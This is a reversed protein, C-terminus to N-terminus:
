NAPGTETAQLQQYTSKRQLLWDLPDPLISARVPPQDTSAVAGRSNETTALKPPEGGTSGLYVPERYSVPGVMRMGGANVRAEAAEAAQVDPDLNAPTEGAAAADEDLSKQRRDDLVTRALSAAVVEPPVPPKNVAIQAGSGPRFLTACVHDYTARYAFAFSQKTYPVGTLSIAQTADEGLTRHIYLEAEGAPYM